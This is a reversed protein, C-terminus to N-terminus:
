SNGGPGGPINVAGDVSARIIIGSGPGLGGGARLNAIAASIVTGPPTAFPSVAAVPAAAGGGGTSGGTGDSPPHFGEEGADNLIVISAAVSNAPISAAVVAWGPPAAFPPAGSPTLRDEIREVGLRTRNSM